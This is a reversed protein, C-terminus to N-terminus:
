LLYYPNIYKDIVVVFKTRKALFDEFLKNEKYSINQHEGDKSWYIKNQTWYFVSFPTNLNPNHQRSSIFSQFSKVVSDAGYKYSFDHQHQVMHRKNHSIFSVPWKMKWSRHRHKHIWLVFALLSGCVYGGVVVIVVVGVITIVIVLPLLVVVLLVKHKQFLVVVFIIAM